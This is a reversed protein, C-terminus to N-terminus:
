IWLRDVARNNELWDSIQTYNKCVHQVNWGDSGGEGEPFTTEAGELATDGCCTISQRLYDFCHAVHWYRKPSFGQALANYASM